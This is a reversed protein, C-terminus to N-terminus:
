RSWWPKKKIRSLYGPLAEMFIFEELTPLGKAHPEGGELAETFGEWWAEWKKTVDADPAMVLIALSQPSGIGMRWMGSEVSFVAYPGWIPDYKSGTPTWKGWRYDLVGRRLLPSRYPLLAGELVRKFADIEEARESQPVSDGRNCNRTAFNLLNYREEREM